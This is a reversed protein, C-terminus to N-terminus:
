KNKSKLLTITLSTKFLALTPRFRRKKQNKDFENISSNNFILLYCMPMRSIQLYINRELVLCSSFYIIKGKYFRLCFSDSVPIM